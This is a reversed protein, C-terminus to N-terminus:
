LLREKNIFLPCYTGGVEYNKPLTNFPGNLEESSVDFWHCAYRDFCGKKNCKYSPPLLSIDRYLNHKIIIARKLSNTNVWKPPQGYDISSVSTFVFKGEFFAKGKANSQLTQPPIKMIHGDVLYLNTESLIKTANCKWFSCEFCVSHEKMYHLIDSETDEKFLIPVVPQGCLSCKYIKVNNYSLPASYM